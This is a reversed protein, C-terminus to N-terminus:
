NNHRGKSLSLSRIWNLFEQRWKQSEETGKEDSAGFGHGGTKFQLYRHNIRNATLASDLLISNHYEVTPDDVCNVLFVPPCNAPIHRELSLSDIMIPDHHRQESLLARRSRKHVYPERMTVVPYIPAVFAPCLSVNTDFGVDKLYDHENFCAASMVLHGGASFGMMGVQEPNVHYEDAHERVWQLARQADTIMDPYQKGRFLIRHHWFYAGFGIVRYRLVFATIGNGQLWQAVKDSENEKDLWCYSGGPCVIVALGTENNDAVYPTLTVQNGYPIDTDQWLFVREQAFLGVSFFCLLSIVWSKRIM